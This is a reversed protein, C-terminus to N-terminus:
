VKIPGQVGKLRYGEKNKFLIMECNPFLHFIRMLVFIRFFPMGSPLLGNLVISVLEADEVKTGISGFKARFENARSIYSVTTDTKNMHTSSLQNRFLM